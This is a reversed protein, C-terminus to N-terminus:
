VMIALNPPEEPQPQERCGVALTVVLLATLAVACLVIPKKM